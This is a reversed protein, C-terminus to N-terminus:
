RGPRRASAHVLAAPQGVRHGADGLGRLAAGRHDHERGLRVIRARVEVDVLVRERADTPATDIRTVDAASATAVATAAYRVATSSRRVTTSFRGSAAWASSSASPQVSGAGAPARRRPGTRRRRRAAPPRSRRRPAAPTRRRGRRGSAPPAHRGAPARRASRRGARSWRRRSPARGRRGTTAPRTRRNRTAAPRRASGRRRGSRRSPSRASCTSSAGRHASRRRARGDHLDVDLGVREAPVPRDVEADGAVDRRCRGGDRGVGAFATDCRAVDAPPDRGLAAPAVDGNSSADVASRMSGRVSDIASSSRSGASRVTQMSEPLKM